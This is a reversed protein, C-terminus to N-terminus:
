AATGDAEGAWPDDADLPADTVETVTGSGVPSVTVTSREPLVTRETPTM